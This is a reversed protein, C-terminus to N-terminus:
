KLRRLDEALEVCYDILRACADLGAAYRTELNALRAEASAPPPAPAKSPALPAWRGRWDKARTEAVDDM